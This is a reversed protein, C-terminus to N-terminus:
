RRLDCIIQKEDQPETITRNDGCVACRENRKVEVVRFNMTFIDFVLLKGTLLDGIGMIYKLAESAQITGMVGAVSGLIGAQSCTPAAGAPPPAEIICRYCTSGPIYTLTQGNFRLIGAHSFAKNALVCADNILFKAAFNDTGDVIFDYQDVLERINAATVRYPYTEVKIDPNLAAMKEGASIVKERGVDETFHIIQRQLNSLDAKDGDAIGITGVGAAALYLACPSGLGGAGIILVRGNLLKEQGKGGVEKLIIQRSYREIQSENLKM